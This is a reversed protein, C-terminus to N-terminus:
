PELQDVYGFRKRGEDSAGTHCVPVWRDASVHLEKIAVFRIDRRKRTSFARRTECLTMPWWGLLKAQVSPADKERSHVKIDQRVACSLM